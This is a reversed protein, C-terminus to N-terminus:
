VQFPDTLVAVVQIWDFFDTEVIEVVIVRSREQPEPTLTSSIGLLTM